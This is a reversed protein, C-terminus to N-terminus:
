NLSYLLFNEFFIYNLGLIFHKTEVLLFALNKSGISFSEISFTSIKGGTNGGTLFGGVEVIPLQYTYSAVFSTDVTVWPFTLSFLIAGLLYIRNVAFFTEKELFLRYLLYFGILALNVKIIYNM